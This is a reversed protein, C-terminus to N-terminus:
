VSAYGGGRRNSSMSDMVHTILDKILYPLEIWFDRHPLLDIGRANYVKYNYLAYGGFYLGILLGVFTFFVGISSMGENIDKPPVDKDKSPEDESPEDETPEDEKPIKEKPQAGCAFVTKWHVALVNSKFSVITPENPDEKTPQSTDCELTILASLSKNNIHEGGLSISLQAGNQSLDQETNNPVEVTANLKSGEFEGAIAQVHTVRDSGKKTNIVRRCIYTRDKCFDEEDVDSPRNLADCINIETQTSTITPYTTENHVVVFPRNLRSLDLEWIGNSELKYGSKCYDQICLVYTSFYLVSIFIPIYRM